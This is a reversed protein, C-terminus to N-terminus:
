KGEKGLNQMMKQLEAETILDAKTPANKIVTNNINKLVFNQREFTAFQLDGWYYDVSYICNLKPQTAVSLDAKFIMSFGELPNDEGSEEEVGTISAGGIVSGVLEFLMADAYEENLTYTKGSKAFVGEQDQMDLYKGFIEFVTYNSANVMQFINEGGIMESSLWKGELVDVLANMSAFSGSNDKEGDKNKVIESMNFRDFRIASHGEAKNLYMEFCMDMTTTKDEWNEGYSRNTYNYITADVNYYSETETFSCTMTRDMVSRTTTSGDGIQTYNRSSSQSELAITVSTYKKASEDALKSACLDVSVNENDTIGLLLEGAAEWADAFEEVTEVKESKGNGAGVEVQVTKANASLVGGTVTLIACLGLAIYKKLDKM